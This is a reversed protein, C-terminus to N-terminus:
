KGRLLNIKDVFSIKLYSEVLVTTKVTFSGNKEDNSPIELCKILVIMFRGNIGQIFSTLFTQERDSEIM